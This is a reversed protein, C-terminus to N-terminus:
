RLSRNVVRFADDGASASIQLYGLAETLVSKFRAAEARADRLEVILRVVAERTRERPDAAIREFDAETLRETLRSM